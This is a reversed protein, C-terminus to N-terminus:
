RTPPPSWGEAAESIANVAARLDFTGGAVGAAVGLMYATLPALYRVGTVDATIKTVRLLLRLDQDSPPPVSLTEGVTGLWAAQIATEENPEM